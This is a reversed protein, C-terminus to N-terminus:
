EGGGGEEEMEECANPIPQGLAIGGFKARHATFTIGFSLADCAVDLGEDRALTRVDANDTLLDRATRHLFTGPCIGVSEATQLLAAISWRGAVLAGHPETGSMDPSLDAVAYAGHLRAQVAQGEGVLNFIQNEPLRVVLTWDVVYATDIRVSPVGADFTDDRAWFWLDGTDWAPDTGVIETPNDPDDYVVELPPIETAPDCEGEVDSEEWHAVAGDETDMICIDPAVAGEFPVGFVSQTVVVTVRPDNAQGNYDTLIVLPNGYGRAEATQSTLQLDQEADGSQFTANIIEFIDAFKNDIGRPGDVHPNPDEGDLHRQLEPEQLCSWPGEPGTCVEDINLGAFPNSLTVDKLSFVLEEIDEGDTDAPPRPPPRESGHSCGDDVPTTGSDQEGNDVRSDPPLLDPDFVSCGLTTAMALAWVGMFSGTRRMRAGMRLM